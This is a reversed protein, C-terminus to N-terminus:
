AEARAVAVEIVQIWQPYDERRRLLRVIRLTLDQDEGPLAAVASIWEETLEAVTCRRREAMMRLREYTADTVSV